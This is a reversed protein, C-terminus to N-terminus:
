SEGNRGAEARAARRFEHPRSSTLSNSGFSRDRFEEGLEIVIGFGLAGCGGLEKGLALM